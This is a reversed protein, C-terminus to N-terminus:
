SLGLKEVHNLKFEILNIYNLGLSQCITEAIDNVAIIMKPTYNVHYKFYMMLNKVKLEYIGSTYFFVYDPNIKALEHLRLPEAYIKDILICKFGEKEYEYFERPHDNGEAGNIFVISKEKPKRKKTIHVSYDIINYMGNKDMLEAKDMEDLEEISNVKVNITTLFVDGCYNIAKFKFKM